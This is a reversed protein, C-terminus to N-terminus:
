KPTTTTATAPSTATSTGAEDVENGRCAKFLLIKPKGLLGPADCVRMVEDVKITGDYTLLRGKDEGHTLVAVFLM